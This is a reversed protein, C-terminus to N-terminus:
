RHPGGDNPRRDVVCRAIVGVPVGACAPLERGLPTRAGPALEARRAVSTGPPDQASPAADDDFQM